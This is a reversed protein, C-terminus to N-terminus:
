SIVIEFKHIFRALPVPPCAERYNGFAPRHVHGFPDFFLRRVLYCLYFIAKLRLISTLTTEFVLFCCHCDLNTMFQVMCESPKVLRRSSCSEFIVLEVAKSLPILVECCQYSRVSPFICM